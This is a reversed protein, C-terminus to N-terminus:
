WNEDYLLGYKELRKRAWIFLVSLMKRIVKQIGNGVKWELIVGLYKARKFTAIYYCGRPLKLSPVKYKKTFFVSPYQAIYIFEFERLWIRM